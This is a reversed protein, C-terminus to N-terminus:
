KNKKGGGAWPRAPGGSGPSPAPGWLGSENTGYKLHWMFTIDYQYKDKKRQSLESPIIIEPQTWTAAFPMIKKKKDLTYLYWTKTREDTLPCKPQKWTKPRTLLAAIFM